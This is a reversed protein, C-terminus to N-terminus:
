IIPGQQDPPDDARIQAASSGLVRRQLRLPRGGDDEERHESDKGQHQPQRQLLLKLYM